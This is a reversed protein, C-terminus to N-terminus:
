RSTDQVIYKYKPSNICIVVFVFTFDLKSKSKTNARDDPLLM